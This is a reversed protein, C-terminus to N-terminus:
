FFQADSVGYLADLGRFHVNKSTHKSSKLLLLMRLSHYM